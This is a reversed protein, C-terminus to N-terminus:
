GITVTESEADPPLGRLADARRDELILTIAEVLSMIATLENRQSPIEGTALAL